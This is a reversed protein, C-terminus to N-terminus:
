GNIGEDYTYLVQKDRCENRRIVNIDVESLLDQKQENEMMSELLRNKIKTLRRFDEYNFNPAVKVVDSWVEGWRSKPKRGRHKLIVKAVKIQEQTGTM